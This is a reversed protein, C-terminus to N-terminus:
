MAIIQHMEIRKNQQTFHLCHAIFQLTKPLSKIFKNAEEMNHFIYSQNQWIISYLHRDNFM